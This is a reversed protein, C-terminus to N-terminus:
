LISTNNIKELIKHAIEMALYGDIESVVTPKNHIISDVFSGGINVPMYTNTPNVSAGGGGGNNFIIGSGM